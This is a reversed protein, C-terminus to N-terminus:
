KVKVAHGGFAKRLGSIFKYAMSDSRRSAFRSYLATTLVPTPVKARLSEEVAWRGTGSDDVYPEFSSLSEDENLMGEGLELLWSRIVGGRNWVSVVDKISLEFPANELMDIGEGYAQMLGYEIANHIMKVYHGSGSPGMYSYGGETCLVKFFPELIDFSSREGGIMMCFGNKEGWVGGSTGVDVYSVGKELCLKNRRLTDHFNSNGGDILVDGSNLAPLLESICADVPDGAPVMLWIIRREPFSTVLDSLSEKFFFNAGFKDKQNIDRDYANVVGGAKLIRNILGGGMRGIGVFGIVGLASM